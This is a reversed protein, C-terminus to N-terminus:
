RDPERAAADYAARLARLAHHLRSKVTGAPADTREAIAEIPMDLLYRLVVVVRHDPTLNAIAERLAAREEPGVDAGDNTPTADRAQREVVARAVRRRRLRDRCENVVIRDLWAPAASVDRVASWSRQARLIAEHTADEAEQRDGLVVAALRYCADLRDHVLTEFARHSGRQWRVESTVVGGLIASM